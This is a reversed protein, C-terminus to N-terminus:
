IQVLNGKKRLHMKGVTFLANYPRFVWEKKLESELHLLELKTRGRNEQAQKDILAFFFKGAM